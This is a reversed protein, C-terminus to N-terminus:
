INYNSRIHNINLVQRGKNLLYHALKSDDTLILCDKDTINFIEADTFGFKIFADNELNDLMDITKNQVSKLFSSLTSFIAYHYNTNISDLLNCVETVISNTVVINSSSKVLNLISNYDEKTYNSIRSIKSILNINHNGVLFVMFINTDLIISKYRM